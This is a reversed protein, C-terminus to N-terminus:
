VNWTWGCKPCKDIDLAFKEGCKLCENNSNATSQAEFKEVALKLEELIEFIKEKKFNFTGLIIYYVWNGRVLTNATPRIVAFIGKPDMPGTNTNMKIEYDCSSYCTTVGWYRLSNCEIKRGKYMGSVKGASFIGPYIVKPMYLYNAIKKYNLMILISGPLSLILIYGGIIVVFPPVISGITSLHM